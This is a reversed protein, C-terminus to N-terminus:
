PLGVAVFAAIGLLALFILILIAKKQVECEKKTLPRLEHEHQKEMMAGLAAGLAAGMAPGLAFMDTAAGVSVGIAVGVAIGLGMYHGKPHKGTKEYEKRSIRFSYFAMLAGSILLVALLLMVIEWAM